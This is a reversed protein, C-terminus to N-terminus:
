EYRLAHIPNARALRWAHTFITAWAIALAALGVGLFYLPNLSIRDAFGELWQHLFLWAAPWAILNALAVPVSFQRLLLLIVDSTRAGFM